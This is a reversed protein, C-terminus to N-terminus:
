NPAELLKLSLQEHAAAFCHFGPWGLGKEVVWAPLHDSREAATAVAFGQTERGGSM